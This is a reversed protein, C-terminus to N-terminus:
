AGVAVDGPDAVILLVQVVVEGAPEAPGGVSKVQAVPFTRSSSRFPWYRSVVPLSSAADATTSQRWPRGALLPLRRTVVPLRRLLVAPHIPLRGRTRIVTTQRDDSPRSRSCGRLPLRTRNERENERLGLVAQFCGTSAAPDAAPTRHDVAVFAGRDEVALEGARSLRGSPVPCLATIRYPRLKAPVPTSAPARVEMRVVIPASHARTTQRMDRDTSPQWRRNRGHCSWSM